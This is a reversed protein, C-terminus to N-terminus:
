FLIITSEEVPQEQEYGSDNDKLTEDEEDDRIISDIDFRDEESEPESSVVEDNSPTNEGVIFDLDEDEEVSDQFDDYDIEEKFFTDLKNM